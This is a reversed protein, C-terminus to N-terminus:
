CRIIYDKRKEFIPDEHSINDLESSFLKGIM